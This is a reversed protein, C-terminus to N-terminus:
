EGKNSPQNDGAAIPLQELYGILRFKDTQGMKSGGEMQARRLIAGRNMNALRLLRDKGLKSVYYLAILTLAALRQQALALEHRFTVQEVGVKRLADQAPPPLPIKVTGRFDLSVISEFGETVVVKAHYVDAIILSLLYLRLAISSNSEEDDTRPPNRFFYFMHSPTQYCISEDTSPPEYDKLHRPNIRIDGKLHARALSEHTIEIPEQRIVKFRLGDANQRQQKLYKTLKKVSTSTPRFIQSIQFPNHFNEGNALKEFVRTMNWVKGKGLGLSQSRLFEEVAYSWRKSMDPSLSLDPIVIMSMAPADPFFFARLRAESLCLECVLAKRQGGIKSGAPLWNTFKESGEGFLAAVATDFSEASCLHCVRKTQDKGERYREYTADSIEVIDDHSLIPVPIYGIDSLLTERVRLSLLSPIYQKYKEAVRKLLSISGNAIINRRDKKMHLRDSDFKWLQSIVEARRIAPTTNGIDSLDDLAWPYLYKELWLKVDQNYEKAIDSDDIYNSYVKLFDAVYCLLAFDSRMDAIIADRESGSNKVFDDLAKKYEPGKKIQSEYYSKGDRTKKQRAYSNLLFEILIPIDEKRVAQIAPWKTQTIPGIVANTMGIQYTNSEQFREFEQNILDMLQKKSDTIIESSSNRLYVAGNGFYLLPIYGHDGLLNIVAQNLFSSVVGRIVTLEHYEFEFSDLEPLDPDRKRGLIEQPTKISAISDSLRIIKAVADIPGVQSKRKSAVARNPSDHTYVLLNLIRPALEVLDIDLIDNSLNNQANMLFTKLRELDDDTGSDHEFNLGKREGKMFALASDQWIDYSKQFDHMFGGLSLILLEDDEYGFVESGLIKAVSFVNVAHVLLSQSGTKAFKAYKYQWDEKMAQKILADLLTDFKPTTKATM